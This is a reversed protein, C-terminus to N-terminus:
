PKSKSSELARILAQTARLRDALPPLSMGQPWPEIWSKLHLLLKQNDERLEALQDNLRRTERHYKEHWEALQRSQEALEISLPKAHISCWITTGGDSTATVIHECEPKGGGSREAATM